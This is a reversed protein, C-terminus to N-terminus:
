FLFPLKYISATTHSLSLLLRIQGGGGLLPIHARFLLLLCYPLMAEIKKAEKRRSSGVPTSGCVSILRPYFSPCEPINIQGPGHCPDCATLAAFQFVNKMHLVITLLLFYTLTMAPFLNHRHSSILSGLVLKLMQHHPSSLFQFFSQMIFYVPTLFFFPVIDKYEPM